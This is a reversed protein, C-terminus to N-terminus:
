AADQRLADSLFSEKSVDHLYEAIRAAAEVIHSLRLKEEPSM